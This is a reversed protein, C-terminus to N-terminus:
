SNWIRPIQNHAMRATETTWRGHEELYGSKNQMKIATYAALGATFVPVVVKAIEITTRKWGMNQKSEEIAKADENKKREIERREEKDYADLQDKEVSRLAEMAELYRKHITGDKVDAVKAEEGLLNTYEELAMLTEDKM